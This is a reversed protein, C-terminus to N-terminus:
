GYRMRNVDCERKGGHVECVLTLNAGEAYAVLLKSM